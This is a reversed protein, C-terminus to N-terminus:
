MDPAPDKLHGLGWVRPDCGTVPAQLSLLMIVLTPHLLTHHLLLTLSSHLLKYYRPLPQLLSLPVSSTAVACHCCLSCPTAASAAEADRPKWVLRSTLPQSFDTVERYSLQLAVILLSLAIPLMISCTSLSNCYLHPLLLTYLFCCHLPHSAVPWADVCTGIRFILIINRHHLM